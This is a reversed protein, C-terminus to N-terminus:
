VRGPWDLAHDVILIAGNSVIQVKEVKFPKCCGKVSVFYEGEKNALKILQGNLSHMEAGNLQLQKIGHFLDTAVVHSEIFHMVNSHSTEDRANNDDTIGEPWEWPKASLKEIADDSPAFVLLYEKQDTLDAKAVDQDCKQYLDVDDRMYSSFISIESLQTLSDHLSIEKEPHLTYEVNEPIMIHRKNFDISLERKQETNLPKINIINKALAPVALLLIAASLVKM